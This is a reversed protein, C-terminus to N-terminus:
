NVGSIAWRLVKAPTRLGSADRLETTSVMVIGGGSWSDYIAMRDIGYLQTSTVHCDTGASSLLQGSDRSFVSVVCNGAQVNAVVITQNLAGFKNISLLGFRTVKSTGLRFDSIELLGTSPVRSVCRDDSCALEGFSSDSPQSLVIQSNLSGDGLIAYKRLIGDGGQAYLYADGLTIGRVFTGTIRITNVLLARGDILQFLWIPTTGDLATSSNNTIAVFDKRPSSTMVWPKALLNSALRTDIPFSTGVGAIQTQIWGLGATFPARSARSYIYASGDSGIGLVSLGNISAIAENITTDIGFLDGVLVAGSNIEYASLTNSGAFPVKATIFWPMSSMGNLM